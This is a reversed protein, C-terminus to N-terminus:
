VAELDIATDVDRVVGRDAVEVDVVDAAALVARAGGGSGTGDGCAALRAFLGRAILPPHGRRGGFVPRAADHAGLAAVLQRLTAAAVDPHDVPWLWASDADIAAFGLAVSSAMGQEPHPNVITRAGLERAHVAVADGHPAGVVVVADALGVERASALISSLFTRQDRGVLLAKAVGGLRTGAGAALIVAGITM